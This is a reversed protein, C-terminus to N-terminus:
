RDRDRRVGQARALLRTSGSRGGEGLRAGAARTGARLRSPADAATRRLRGSIREWRGLPRGALLHLAGGALLAGAFVEATVAGALLFPEPGLPAWPGLSGSALRGLALAGLGALAAVAVADGARDGLTAGRSSPHRHAHWAALAGAAVVAAPALFAWLPFAGPSPLAALLPVAPVDLVTSGGPAVHSGAFWTGPGALVAAAHVVAVPLYALQLLLVVVGGGLGPALAAHVEAVTAVHLLLAASLLVAGGLLWAALAVGAAPVVRRVQVDVHRPLRDLLAGAHRRLVAPVGAALALVGAGAACAAPDPTVVPTDAAWALLWASVAYGAAVVLLLVLARLPACRAALQAGARYAPWAALLVLLLPPLSVVGAVTTLPDAPSASTAVESLVGVQGLHALLWASTGLRVAQPWATAASPDSVWGVVVLGVCVLVGVAVAGLTQSVALRLDAFADGLWGLVGTRAEDSRSSGSRAGSGAASPRGVPARGPDPSGPRRATSTRSSSVPGHHPRAERCRGLSM